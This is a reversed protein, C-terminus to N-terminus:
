PAQETLQSRLIKGAPCRPIADRFDFASPVKYGTLRERCHVALENRGCGARAVVVAKVAEEGYPDRVAVVVAELVDPHEELATEVEVPNVKRGAVNILLAKRGTLTLRGADDLRGLDGLRIWGDDGALPQAGESSLTHVAAAAGRVAIEGEQEPSLTAGDEGVVRVEVGPLPRGVSTVNATADFDLNLTLAGTETSGYLQRPSAGLRERFRTAIEERLPSGATFCLRLASLDVPERMRTDALISLIFPVAPFLTIREEALLRLTERREFREQLYLTAGVQLSALLGHALGHSHHLPVLALIRDQEHTQAAEAFAQAERCLAEHSRVIRKAPGTTGSSSQEILAADSEPLAVNRAAEPAAALEAISPVGADPGGRLFARLLTGDKLQQACWSAARNGALLTRAGSSTLAHRLERETSDAPIPVAVAGLRAVALFGMVFEPCNPLLFAVREGRQVGQAALGAAM